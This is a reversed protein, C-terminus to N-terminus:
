EKIFEEFYHGSWRYRERVLDPIWEVTPAGENWYGKDTEVIIYEASKLNWWVDRLAEEFTNGYAYGCVTSSGEQYMVDKGDRIPNVGILEAQTFADCCYFVELKIDIQDLNRLIEIVSSM